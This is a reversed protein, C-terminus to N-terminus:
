AEQVDTQKTAGHPRDKGSLNGTGPRNSHRRISAPRAIRAARNLRGGAAEEEEEEEMVVVVVVM